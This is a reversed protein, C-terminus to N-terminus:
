AEVREVETNWTISASHAADETFALCPPAAQASTPTGVLAVVLGLLAAPSSRSLDSNATCTTTPAATAM